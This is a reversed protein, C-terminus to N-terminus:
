KKDGEAVLRGKGDYINGAPDVFIREGPEMAALDNVDVHDRPFERSKYFMRRNSDFVAYKVEVSEADGDPDEVGVLFYEQAGKPRNLDCGKGAM